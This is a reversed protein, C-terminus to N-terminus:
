GNESTFGLMKPLIKRRNALGDVLETKGDSGCLRSDLFIPNVDRKQIGAQAPIVTNKVFKCTVHTARKYNAIKETCQMM